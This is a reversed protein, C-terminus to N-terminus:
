SCRLRRQEARRRAIEDKKRDRDKAIGDRTATLAVGEKELEYGENVMAIIDRAGFVVGVLGGLRSIIGGTRVLQWFSNAIDAFDPGILSSRVAQWSNAVRDMQDNVQANAEDFQRRLTALALEANGIDVALQRCRPDPADDPAKLLLDGPRIVGDSKLGQRDQYIRIALSLGSDFFPSPAAPCPMQYFGANQLARKVAIVDRADNRRGSGVERCVDPVDDLYPGERSLAPDDDAGELIRRTRESRPGQPVGKSKVRGEARALWGGRRVEAPSPTHMVM